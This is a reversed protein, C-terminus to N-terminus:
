PNLGTCGRLGEWYAQAADADSGSLPQPVSGSIRGPIWRYSDVRRGTVTVEFVGTRSAEPSQGKFLFNGLGYNVVADGLRGGGQLRHAHGGVVVDAGAEVLTAALSKQDGTPCTDKEVGWHLFVVVTDNEVRAARVEEVLRDLRKASALGPKNPTATWSEINSSDLVQTAGIVAVKQGKVEATFPEFAEDEESGIGIIFNDPQARKVALSEVLGTAGFDLGHNNAMSVTDFGAARLADVARPPSRFTFEKDDATGGEAIATEFNGVALDAGRLVDGFPGVATSPDGDLRARLEGEFYTDGAFAITIPQGSGLAEGPVPTAIVQPETAGPKSPGPKGANPTTVEAVPTTDETVPASSQASGDDLQSAVYAVGMGNVALVGM